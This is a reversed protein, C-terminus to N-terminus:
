RGLFGNISNIAKEQGKSCHVNEDGRSCIYLPNFYLNRENHLLVTLIVPKRISVAIIIMLLNKFLLQPRFDLCLNGPSLNQREFAGRKKLSGDKGIGPGLFTGSGHYSYPLFETPHNITTVAPFVLPVNDPKPPPSSGTSDWLQLAKELIYGLGSIDLIGGDGGHQPDPDSSFPSTSKPPIFSPNLSVVTPKRKISRNASSSGSYNKKKRPPLVPATDPVSIYATSSEVLSPLQPVLEQSLITASSGEQHGSQTTILSNPHCIKM